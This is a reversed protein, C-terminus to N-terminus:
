PENDVNFLSFSRGALGSYNPDTSTAPGLTVTFSQLGDKSTDDVGTVTVTQPTFWNSANFVLQAPTTPPSTSVRGEAPKSSVLPITVNATPATDLVVKFTVTGGAETTQTGSQDFVIIAPDIPGTVIVKDVKSKDIIPDSYDLQSLLYKGGGSEGKPLAITFQGSGAAGPAFTTTVLEPMGNVTLQKDISTELTPNTSLWFRIKAPASTKTGSNVVVFSGTMQVKLDEKVFSGQITNTIAKSPGQNWAAVLHVMPFPPLHAPPAFGSESITSWAFVDSAVATGAKHIRVTVAFAEADKYIHLGRVQFSGDALKSIAGPSAAGDGWDISATFDAPVAPTTHTFTAVRRNTVIAGRNTIELGAARVVAASIVAQSRITALAGKNGNVITVITYIGPQAYTHTGTVSYDNARQTTTDRAVTGPQVPMGDGWNITATSNAPVASADLDTFRAVVASSLAVTPQGRVAVSEGRIAKDGIGIAAARLDVAAETQGAGVNFQEVDVGLLIRGEFGANGLIAAVAGSSTSRANAASTGLLQHQYFLFDRELDIAKLPFDLQTAVPAVQPPIPALFPPSNATDADATVAFTKTSTGGKGDDATVTVMGPAGVATGATASIVLVTEDNAPEITASAIVVDTLPRNDDGTNPVNDAGDADVPVQAIEDMVDFGRVLQGFITHKYDLFRPKVLTVFFQSGNTASRDTSNIGSNAMALQGRTAFILGPQFESEFKFATAPNGGTMGPGGSGTGLPDGGQIVFTKDVRHFKLGDYFKAQAFGGIFGSTIPAWDRFLVFVMDKGQPVGAYTVKLRLVPNGSKVRVLIRPNDSTAKFALPDGTTSTATIPVILAKGVPVSATAPQDLSVAAHASVAFCSVLLFLRAPLDM